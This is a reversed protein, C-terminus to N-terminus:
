KPAPEYIRQFEEDDIPYYHVGDNERIIWEGLSVVVHRGQMTTVYTGLSDSRKVGPPLREEDLFQEAEILKRAKARYPAM